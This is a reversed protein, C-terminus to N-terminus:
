GHRKTSDRRFIWVLGFRQPWTTKRNANLRETLRLRAKKRFKFSITKVIESDRILSKKLTESIDINKYSVSKLVAELEKAVPVTGQDKYFGWKKMLPGITIDFAGDTIDGYNM